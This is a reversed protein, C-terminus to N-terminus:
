SVSTDDLHMLLRECHAADLTAEEFPLRLADRDILEVRDILGTAALRAKAKGLLAPAHDLGVVHGDVRTLAALRPLFVGTGCGVDLVSEGPQIALRALSKDAVERIFPMLSQTELWEATARTAADDNTAGYAASTFAAYDPSTGVADTSPEPPKSSVRKGEM